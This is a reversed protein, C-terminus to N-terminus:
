LILGGFGSSFRLPQLFAWTGVSENEKKKERTEVKLVLKIWCGEFKQLSDDIVTNRLIHDTPGM